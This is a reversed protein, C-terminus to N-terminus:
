NPFQLRAADTGAKRIMALQFTARHHVLINGNRMAAAADADWAPPLLPRMASDVILVDGDRCGAALASAHGEFVWVAHGIYSLGVLMGLFPIAKSVEALGPAAGAPVDFVTYAIVAINRKVEGPILRDMNKAMTELSPTAALRPMVLHTRDPKLIALGGEAGPAKATQRLRAFVEEIDSRISVEPMRPAAGPAAAPAGEAARPRSVGKGDVWDSFDPKSSLSLAVKHHLLRQFVALAAPPPQAGVSERYYWVQGGGQKVKELAADVQALDAPQGDLLISGSALVSIKVKL